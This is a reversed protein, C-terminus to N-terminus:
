PWASSAPRLDLRGGDRCQASRYADPMTEYVDSWMLGALSRALRRSAGLWTAVRAVKQMAYCQATAENAVGARHESEHALVNVAWALGLRGATDGPLRGRYLEVLPTCVSNALHVREDGRSYAELEVHPWVETLARWDANAWCRVESPEGTLREVVRGLRPEIRSRNSRGAIAPLPRTDGSAYQYAHMLEVLRDVLRPGEPSKPATELRRCARRALRELRELRRTPADGVEERLGGSCAVVGVGSSAIPTWEGLRLLWDREERNLPRPPVRLSADARADSRGSRRGLEDVLSCGSLPLALAAAGACALRFHWRPRWGKRPRLGHV